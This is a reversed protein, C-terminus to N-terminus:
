QHTSAVWTQYDAIAESHLVVKGGSRTVNGNRELSRLKQQIKRRQGQAQHIIRSAPANLGQAARQNTMHRAAENPAVLPACAAIIDDEDHPAGDALMRIIRLYAPALANFNIPVRPGTQQKKRPNDKVSM